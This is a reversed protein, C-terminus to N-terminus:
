YGITMADPRRPDSTGYLVNDKILISQTSGMSTSPQLSHGLEKLITQTDPSIGREISLQDPLWQHHIRPAHTAEAISMEYVIVNLILQLVSTIIKSGGPSGTILFPKKDKFVITPTMSSLPRKGPEIKNAEAGILGFANPVGPKASFDSMQNNLLIGTGEVVAGMGFSFNLTYTNSVVNGFRDVVSFHTTEESEYGLPNDPLIESSPTARDREIKKSLFDAYGKAILEKTPVEWFLPDGLYKSRDAYALKMAETMVHLSAASNHGSKELSFNELINLIQILHVGGSSPPPMSAIDYGHFSGWIVDTIDPKYSALDEMTILGENLRMAQVIKQAIAGRYFADEGQRAILKLSRALDKQKFVEGAQYPKGDPKYFISASTPWNALREDMAVLVREMDHTVSFGNRALKIAPAMVEKLSMTGYTELALVLGAVTGPVGVSKYSDNTLEADVEKNADLYMDAYAAKPATERYNIAKTEEAEADYVLMFGGGGLNGARPLVVALSFGVAVAADVANGGKQLIEIGVQTAIPHQSAVM